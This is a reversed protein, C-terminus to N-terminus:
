INSDVNKLTGVYTQLYQIESYDRKYILHVFKTIDGFYNWIFYKFM